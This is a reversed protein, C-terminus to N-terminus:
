AKRRYQRMIMVLFAMIFFIMRLAPLMIAALPVSGVLLGNDAAFGAIELVSYVVEIYATLVGIAALMWATERTKSWLIIALFAAAAALILRSYMFVMQGWDM